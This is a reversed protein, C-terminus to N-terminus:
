PEAQGTISGCNNSVHVPQRIFHVHIYMCVCLWYYTISLNCQNCATSGCILYFTYTYIYNYFNINCM